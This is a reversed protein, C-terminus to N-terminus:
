VHGIDVFCNISKIGIMKNTWAGYIQSLSECLLSWSQRGERIWKDRTISVKVALMVMRLRAKDYVSWESPLKSLYYSVPAINQKWSFEQYWRVSEDANRMAIQPM